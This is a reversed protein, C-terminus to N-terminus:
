VEAKPLEIVFASGLFSVSDALQLRGGMAEVLNRSIFLGLGHGKERTSADIMFISERRQYTIGPGTDMVIIQLPYPDNEEVFRTLIIIAEKPLVPHSKGKQRASKVMNDRQQSIQQIANLVLNTLVQELRSQVGQAAPLYPELELFITARAKDNAETASQALIKQAIENLDVAKMDGRLMQSYAKALSELEKPYLAIEDAIQMAKKLSELRKKEDSEQRSKQLLHHLTKTEAQLGGVKNHMEHVMSEFLQGRVYRQEFRQMLDLLSHRELAIRIFEATQRAYTIKEAAFAEHNDDLLFLAHETRFGPITIPLGLASRFHDFPEFYRYRPNLPKLEKDEVVEENEIVEQVPSFYLGDLFYNEVEKRM